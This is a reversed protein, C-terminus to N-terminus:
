EAWTRLSTRVWVSATRVPSSSSAAAVAIWCRARAYSSPMRSSSFATTGTSGAAGWGRRFAARSAAMMASTVEPSASSSHRGSSAPAVPAESTSPAGTDTDAVLPDTKTGPDADPLFAAPDTGSGQATTLGLETGDKVNRRFIEGTSVAPVGLRDALRAAQTGKGAGPPGLLVVRRVTAHESM